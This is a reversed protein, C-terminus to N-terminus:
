QKFIVIRWRQRKEVKGLGNGIFMRQIRLCQINEFGVATVEDIFHLANETLAIGILHQHSIFGPSIYERLVPPLEFRAIEIAIFGVIQSYGM